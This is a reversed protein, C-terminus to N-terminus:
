RARAQWEGIIALLQATKAPGIGRLGRFGDCDRELMGATLRFTRATRARRRVVDQGPLGSGLVLAIMETDSLRGPRREILRERPM